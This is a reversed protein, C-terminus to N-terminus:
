HLLERHVLELCIDMEKEYLLGMILESIGDCQQWLVVARVCLTSDIEVM